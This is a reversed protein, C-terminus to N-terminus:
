KILHINSDKNLTSNAVIKNLAENTDRLQQMLKDILTRQEKIIEFLKEQKQQETLEKSM